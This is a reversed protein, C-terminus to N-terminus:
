HTQINSDIETDIELVHKTRNRSLDTQTDSVSRDKKYHKTFKQTLGLGVKLRVKHTIYILQQFHSRETSQIYYLSDKLEM